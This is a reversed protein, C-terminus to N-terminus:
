ILLKLFIPSRIISSLPRLITVRNIRQDSRFRWGERMELLIERAFRVRM